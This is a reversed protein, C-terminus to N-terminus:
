MGHILQNELEEKQGKEDIYQKYKTKPNPIILEKIYYISDSRIKNVQKIRQLPVGYVISIGM